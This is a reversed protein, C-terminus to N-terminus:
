GIGVISDHGTTTQTLRRGYVYAQYRKGTTQVIRRIPQSRDTAAHVGYFARTNIREELEGLIEIPLQQRLLM